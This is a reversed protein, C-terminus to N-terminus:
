GEERDSIIGEQEKQFGLKQKACVSVGSHKRGGTFVARSKEKGQIPVTM